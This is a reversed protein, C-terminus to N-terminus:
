SGIWSPDDSQNFKLIRHFATAMQKTKSCVLANRPGRSLIPETNSEPQGTFSYNAIIISVYQLIVLLIFSTQNYRKLLM